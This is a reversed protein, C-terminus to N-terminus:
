SGQVWITAPTVTGADSIEVNGHVTDTFHYGPAQTTAWDSNWPMASNYAIGHQATIGGATVVKHHGYDRNGSFVGLGTSSTQIASKPIALAYTIGGFGWNDHINLDGVPASNPTVTFIRGGGYSASCVHLGSADLETADRPIDAIPSWVQRFYCGWIEIGYNGQIQVADNHSGWYTGGDGSHYPDLAFFAIRTGFCGKIVVDNTASTSTTNYVGFYDTVDEVRCRDATYKRGIIGTSGSYPKTAHVFCRTLLTNTGNCVVVGMEPNQSKTTSSMGSIGQPGLVECTDLTVNAQTILVPWPILMGAVTTNANPVFVEIGTSTLVQWKGLAAGNTKTLTTLTTGAPIGTNSADPRTTGYVFDGQVPPPIPTSGDLITRSGGSTVWAGDVRVSPAGQATWTGAVRLQSAVM